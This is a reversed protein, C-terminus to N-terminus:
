FAQHSSTGRRRAVKQELAEELRNHEATLQKSWVPARNSTRILDSPGTTVYM